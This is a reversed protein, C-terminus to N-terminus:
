DAVGQLKHIRVPALEIGLGHHVIREVAMEVDDCLARSVDELNRPDPPLSAMAGPRQDPDAFHPGHGAAPYRSGLDRRVSALNQQSTLGAPYEGRPREKVGGQRERGRGRCCRRMM